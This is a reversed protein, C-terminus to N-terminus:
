YNNMQVTFLSVPKTLKGPSPQSRKDNLRYQSRGSSFRGTIQRVGVRIFYYYSNNIFCSQKASIYRQFRNWNIKSIYYFSQLIWRHYKGNLKSWIVPRNKKPMECSASGTLASAWTRARAMPSRLFEMPLLCANTMEILLRETDRKAPATRNCRLLALSRCNTGYGKSQVVEWLVKTTAASCRKCCFWVITGCTAVHLM